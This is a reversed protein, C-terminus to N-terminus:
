YQYLFSSIELYGGKRGEMWLKFSIEKTEKKIKQRFNSLRIINEGVEKKRKYPEPLVPDTRANSM